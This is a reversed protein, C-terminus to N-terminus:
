RHAIAPTFSAFFAGVQVAFSVLSVAAATVAGTNTRTRLGSAFGVISAVGVSLTMAIEIPSFHGSLVHAWGLLFLWILSMMCLWFAFFPMAIWKAQESRQMGLAVGIWLPATQVLHRLILGTVLGVTYLSLIVALCSGAIWYSNKKEVPGSTM